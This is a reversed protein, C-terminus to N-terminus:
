AILSEVRAVGQAVLAPDGKAEVNLRLLPETNSGRLNFRWDGFSLGLGDTDDRAEAEPALAAEVRAIAAKVDEVRHNIEGSSPFAARREAVLDALSADRRSM